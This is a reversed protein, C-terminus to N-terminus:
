PTIAFFPANRKTIQDNLEDDIHWGRAKFKELRKITITNVDKNPVLKMSKIAQLQAESIYLKNTLIDYYPTCHVFDFNKRAGEEESMFTIFQVDNKLTIANDTIMKLPGSLYTAATDAYKTNDIEKVLDSHSKLFQAIDTVKSTNKCYIDIDNVRTGLLISSICGGSIVCNDFFLSTLAPNQLESMKKNYLAILTGKAVNISKKDEESFM